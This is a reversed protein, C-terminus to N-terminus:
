RPSQRLRDPLELLSFLADCHEDGFGVELSGGHERRARVHDLAALHDVFHSQLLSRIGGGKLALYPTDAGRRLCKGISRINSRCSGYWCGWRLTWRRCAYPTATGPSSTANSWPTPARALRLSMSPASPTRKTAAAPAPM